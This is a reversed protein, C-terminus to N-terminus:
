TVPGPTPSPLTKLYLDQTLGEKIFAFTRDIEEMTNWVFPALRLCTKQRSDSFINYSKLYQVMRDAHPLEFVVMASRNEPVRPSRLALGIEDALQICRNTKELSDNRVVDLGADMLLRIGEVAHYLSAIATTGGLFRQRVEPHLSPTANFAFPAGPLWALCRIGQYSTGSRLVFFSVSM